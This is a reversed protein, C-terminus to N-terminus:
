PCIVTSRRVIETDWLAQAPAVDTLRALDVSGSVARGSRLVERAGLVEGFVGDNIKQIAEEDRADERYGPPVVGLEVFGATSSSESTASIEWITHGGSGLSLHDLELEFDKPICQDDTFGIEVVDISRAVFLMTPVSGSSAAHCGVCTTVAALSCLTFTLKIPM